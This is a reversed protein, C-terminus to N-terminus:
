TLPRWIWISTQGWLSTKHQTGLTFMGQTRLGSQTYCTMSLMTDTTTTPKVLQSKPVQTLRDTFAFTISVLQTDTDPGTRLPPLWQDRPTVNQFFSLTLQILYGQQFIEQVSIPKRMGKTNISKSKFITTKNKSLISTVNKVELM